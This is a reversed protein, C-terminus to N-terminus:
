RPWHAALAASYMAMRLNIVAGTAVIVFVPAHQELLPLAAFQSAGAIVLSTLAMTELSDLGAERSLIGFVMGFPVISLALPLMTVVGAVMGKRDLHSVTVQPQAAPPTEARLNQPDKM